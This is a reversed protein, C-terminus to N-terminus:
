IAARHQFQTIQQSSEKALREGIVRISEIVEGIEALLAATICDANRIVIALQPSHDRLLDSMKHNRRRNGPSLILASRERNGDLRFVLRNRPQHTGALILILFRDM